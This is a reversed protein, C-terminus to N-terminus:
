EQHGTGEELSPEKRGREAICGVPMEARRAAKRRLSEVGDRNGSVEDSSKAKREAKKRGSGKSVAGGSERKRTGAEESLVLTRRKRKRRKHGGPKRRERARGRIEAREESAKHKRGDSPKGPKGPECKRNGEAKAETRVEEARQAKQKEANRRGIHKRGGDPM